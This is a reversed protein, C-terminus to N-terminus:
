SCTSAARKVGRKELIVDVNLLDIEIQKADMIQKLDPNLEIENTVFYARFEDITKSARDFRKRGADRDIKKLMMEWLEEQTPPPPKDFLKGEIPLGIMSDYHEGGPDHPEGRPEFVSLTLHKGNYGIVQQGIRVSDGEAVPEPPAGSSLTMVWYENEGATVMQTKATAGTQESTIEPKTKWEPVGAGKGLIVIVAEAGSAQSYDVALHTQIRISSCLMSGDVGPQFYSTSSRYFGGPFGTKIGLGLVKTQGGQGAGYAGYRGGGQHATVLIDKNEEGSWGNRTAFYACRRDRWTLPLTEIPNAARCRAALQGFCLGGCTSLRDGRLRQRWSTRTSYGRSFFWRQAPLHAPLSIGFGQAWDRGHMGRRTFGNYAYRDRM